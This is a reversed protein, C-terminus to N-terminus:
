RNGGQGAQRHIVAVPGRANSVLGQSVSGLLLRTAPERGRDGVVLLRARAGARDLAAVPGGHYVARKVAVTPYKHALPEIAVDLMNLAAPQPVVHTEGFKEDVWIDGDEEERSGLAHVAALPLRHEAAHEFGFALAARSSEERDIGVVVHGAFPGADGDVPRVVVVPCGARAAVRRATSRATLRTPARPAGVVLLHADAAAELLGHGADGARIIVRVRDSGLRLRASAVTRALAPDAIELAALSPTRGTISLAASPPRVHCIILRGLTVSVEDLAWAFAQWGPESGDVGVAVTRRDFARSVISAVKQDRPEVVM